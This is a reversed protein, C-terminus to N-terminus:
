RLVFRGVDVSQHPIVLVVGRRCFSFPTGTIRVLPWGGEAPPLAVPLPLFVFLLDSLMHYAHKDAATTPNTLCSALSACHMDEPKQCDGLEM